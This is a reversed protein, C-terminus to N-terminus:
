QREHRGRNRYLVRYTRIFERRAEVPWRRLPNRKLTDLPRPIGIRRLKEGARCMMRYGQSWQGSHWRAGFAYVALNRPTRHRMAGVKGVPLACLECVARVGRDRDGPGDHREEKWGSSRSM